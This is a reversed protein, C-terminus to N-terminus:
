AIIDPIIDDEIRAIRDRLALKERKLRGLTMSCVAGEATMARIRDDLERHQRRLGDLQARGIEAPSMEPHVTM